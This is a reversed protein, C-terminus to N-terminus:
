KSVRSNNKELEEIRKRLAAYNGPMPESSKALEAMRDFEEVLQEDSFGYAEKLLLEWESHKDM